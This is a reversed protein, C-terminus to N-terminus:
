VDSVVVPSKGFTLQLTLSALPSWVDSGYDQKITLEISALQKIALHVAQNDLRELAATFLPRRNQWVRLKDMLQRVNHSGQQRQLQLLTMLERQLTRVLIVPEAAEQQLQQLIHLARKSKGALIADAWHYPSFHAADNVAQEVRPLTLQGEPWLLSLRELAQSLALLNGEYCYCLLGIAQQDIAIGLSKCRQSVWRPLQAQEPTTCPVMVANLSLGKFWGSKEQAKTLKHLHVILLLDSHLLEALRILRPTIQASPGNEPMLLTLTQRRTFLSLSQCVTFLADWDTHNDITFTLHELFQQQRAAAIIADHSEQRLLPDNGSLFYSGRLGEALQAALQEPYLRVM